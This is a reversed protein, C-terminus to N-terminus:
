GRITFGRGFGRNRDYKFATRDRAKRQCVPDDRRSLWDSLENKARPLHAAKVMCNHKAAVWALERLCANTFSNKARGSKIVTVTVENDCRVLLRKNTCKHGWKKMGLLTALCEIENIEVNDMQQIERPVDTSFFEKDSWGGIGIFCADTMMIKDPKVWGEELMMSTRNFQHMYKEWWDLPPDLIEWQPAAIRQPPRWGGVCVSKLSFTHSFLLFQDQQPPPPPAAPAGRSGGICDIDKRVYPSINHQGKNPVCRLFELVRAFFLRGPPVVTSAFNLKGTLKPLAKLSAWNKSRWRRLERNIDDLRHKPLRLTMDVTNAEIGLFVMCTSPPCAKNKSEKVKLEHLLNGLDEYGRQAMEAKKAAALDDLYNVGKHGKKQYVYMIADTNRQLHVDAPDLYM